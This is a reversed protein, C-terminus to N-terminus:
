RFSTMWLLARDATLEAVEVLGTEIKKRQRDMWPKSQERSCRSFITATFLREGLM